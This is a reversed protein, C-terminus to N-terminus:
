EAPPLSFAVVYRNLRFEEGRGEGRKPALLPLLFLAHANADRNLSRGTRRLRRGRGEQLLSLAPTLTEELQM